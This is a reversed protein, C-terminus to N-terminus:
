KTLQYKPKVILSRKPLNALKKGFIKQVDTIKMEVGFSPRKMKEDQVYLTHCAKLLVAYAEKNSERSQLNSYARANNLTIRSVLVIQDSPLKIIESPNIYKVTVLKNKNRM